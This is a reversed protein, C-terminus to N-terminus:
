KLILDFVRFPDDTGYRNFSEENWLELDRINDAEVDKIKRDIKKILPAVGAIDKLLIGQRRGEDILAADEEDIETQWTRKQSLKGDGFDIWYDFTYSVTKRVASKKIVDNLYWYLREISDRGLLLQICNVVVTGKNDRLNLIWHADIDDFRDDVNVAPRLRFEMIPEAFYLHEQRDISGNILQGLKEFLNEVERALLFGGEEKYTVCNGNALLKVQCWEDAWGAVSSKKYGTIEFDVITDDLNLKM